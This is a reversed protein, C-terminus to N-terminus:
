PETSVLPLKKVNVVKKKASQNKMTEPCQKKRMKNKKPPNLTKELIKEAVKRMSPYSARLLQNAYIVIKFGNNILCGAILSCSVQEGTSVIADYEVESFNKSVEKTKKILDNTVGSM